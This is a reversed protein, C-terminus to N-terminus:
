ASAAKRRDSDATSSLLGMVEAIEMSTREEWSLFHKLAYDRANVGLEAARTPDKLLSILEGPLLSLDDENLLIGTASHTVVRATDGTALTVICKGALMSELLPNGVNSWTYLSLFIDAAALYTKIENHPVSGIFRVNAAVGLDRALQELRPREVGDGVIMLLTDPCDALVQPFAEIGREVCKWWVLRSLMLIVQRHKLGLHSRAEDRSPMEAFADKDTGNMWFRVKDMDAGIERLVRDGQTGDDMMVILDAPMRLAYWHDWARAYKKWGGVPGPEIITGQFVEVFPTRWLRSLTKAAPVGRIEYGYVVAFAFERKLRLGHFVAAIPFILWWLARAIAGIRRIGFWRKLWSAGFRVIHVGPLEQGSIKGSGTIFVVKWGAQAYALLIRSLLPGGTGQGMSWVDLDSIFLVCPQHAGELKGMLPHVMYLDTCM